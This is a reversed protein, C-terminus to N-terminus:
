KFILSKAKALCQYKTSKAVHANRFGLKESIKELPMKKFYFLFLLERCTDGLKTLATQLLKYQQEKEIIEELDSDIAIMDPLASSPMNKKSRLQKLWINKAIGFLLQEPNIEVVFNRKQSYQYFAIMADHIIDKCEDRGASNQRLWKKINKDFLYLQKFGKEPNTQLLTYLSSSQLM